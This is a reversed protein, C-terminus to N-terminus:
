NFLRAQAHLNKDLLFRRFSNPGKFRLHGRHLIHKRDDTLIDIRRPNKEEVTSSVKGSEFKMELIENQQQFFNQFVNKNWFKRKRM